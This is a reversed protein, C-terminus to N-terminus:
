KSYYYGFLKGDPSIKYDRYGMVGKTIGNIRAATSLKLIYSGGANDVSEIKNNQSNFDTEANLWENLLYAADEKSAINQGFEKILQPSGSDVRPNCGAIFLVILTILLYIQKM